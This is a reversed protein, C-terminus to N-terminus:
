RRVHRAEGEAQKVGHLMVGMRGLVVELGLRTYSTYTYSYLYIYICTYIHYMTYVYIDICVCVCVCVCVYMYIDIYRGCVPWIM